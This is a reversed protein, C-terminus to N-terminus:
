EMKTGCNACFKGGPPLPKGCNFCFKKVHETSKTKKIEKQTVPIGIPNKPKIILDPIEKTNSESDSESSTEPSEFFGEIGSAIKEIRENLEGKAEGKIKEIEITITDEKDSGRPTYAIKIKNKGKSYDVSFVNSLFLKEIEHPKSKPNILIRENTLIMICSSLNKPNKKSKRKYNGHFISIVDEGINIMERLHPPIVETMGLKIMM